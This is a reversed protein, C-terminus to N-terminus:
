LAAVMPTALALQEGASHARAGDTPRTVTFTQVDGHLVIVGGIVVNAAGGTVVFSGAPINTATTQITYAWVIGQDDGTTTDPEAIETGPSAVSTWDDAKWGVYLVLSGDYTVQTAPYAIDQASLSGVRGWSVPLNAVDYFTGAFRAIQATTDAGAVGGSFTVTPSSESAGARKAFLAVNEIPLFIPLRTWGTPTNVTGAGFNRIAAFLLLLNGQATSAPIGPSVSANNGHAVTGVAGFTVAIDDVDTVTVVEGPAELDFPLEAGAAASRWPPWETTAVSWSTASDSVAVALESGATDARGVEDDEVVGVEFPGAPACTMNATWRSPSIEESYGQVLSSVTEAPHQPPLNTVEARDGVELSLWPVIQHPAITLESAISPNRMGPWSGVFYRWGAQYPLQWDAAVAVEISEDYLEGRKPPPDSTKRAFSGDRRTVTVDNRYAQDDLVPEFPHTIDGVNGSAADLELVPAQNYLSTRTRYVLGLRQRDDCLIGLDADAAEQLLDLLTKTEQPGLQETDAPDGIVTLPISEEACLRVIRAGASEGAYGNNAGGDWGLWGAGLGTTVAIHGFAMGDPPGTTLVAVDTVQGLTGALTSEGGFADGSLTLWAVRWRINAGEQLVELSIQTAGDFFQTPVPNNILVQVGDVDFGRLTFASSNVSFTWTNVTGTTAINLLPTETPSTEGTPIVFFANVLWQTLGDRAPVSGFWGGPQGDALSPLPKSAPFTDVTAPQIEGGFGMPEVGPIPSAFQTAETGDECPWYAIVADGLSPDTAARFLTSNLPKAGQALRRLIGSANIEVQAEGPQTDPDAGTQDGYPWTPAISDVQGVFRITPSTITAQGEINWVLGEADTFSTTDVAQATFDPAAVRTSVDYFEVGHIEGQFVSGGDRSGVELPATGAFVSTTGPNTIPDGFQTWSGALSDAHYLTVVNNGGNSVDLDARWAHRGSFSGVPETSTAVVANAVTGDPSAAFWLFGDQVFFVFSLNTTSDFRAALVMDRGWTRTTGDFRVGIDGAAHLSPDDATWAYSGVLGPMSLSPSVGDVPLTLRLPTSRVVNPWHPSGPHDPTLAGDLNSLTLSTTTPESRTGWDSGGRRIKIRQALLRDSLDTWVWSGPDDLDAGFAMEVILAPVEQQSPLISM